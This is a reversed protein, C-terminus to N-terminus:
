VWATLYQPLPEEQLTGLRSSLLVFGRVRFGEGRLIGPPRCRYESSSGKGLLGIDVQAAALPELDLTEQQLVIVKNLM